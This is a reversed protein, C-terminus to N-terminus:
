EPPIRKIWRLAGELSRADFNPSHLLSLDIVVEVSDGAAFETMKPKVAHLRSKATGLCQGRDFIQLEGTHDTLIFVYADHIGQGQCGGGGPIVQLANITGQLRVVRMNFAQPNEIIAQIPVLEERVLESALARSVHLSVLVSCAILVVTHSKLRMRSFYVASLQCTWAVIIGSGM